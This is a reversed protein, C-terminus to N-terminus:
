KIGVGVIRPTAKSTNVRRHPWLIRKIADDSACLADLADKDYTVTERDKPVSVSGIGDINWASQGTEEIIDNIVGRADKQLKDFEDGLARANLYATIARGMSENPEGMRAIEIVARILTIPNENRVANQEMSENDNVVLGGDSCPEM